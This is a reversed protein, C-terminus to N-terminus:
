KAHKGTNRWFTYRDLEQDLSAPEFGLRLLDPKTLLVQLRKDSIIYDAKRLDTAVYDPIRTAWQGAIPSSDFEYYINRSFGKKAYMAITPDEPSM